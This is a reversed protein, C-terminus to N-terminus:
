NLKQSYNATIPGGPVVPDGFSAACIGALCVFDFSGKQGTAQIDIEIGVVGAMGIQWNGGAQGGGLWVALTFSNHTLLLQTGSTNDYFTTETESRGWSYGANLGGYIGTWTWPDVYVPPARYSPPPPPRVAMDAAMAPQMAAALAGIAAVFTKRM